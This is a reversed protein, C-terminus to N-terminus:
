NVIKELIEVECNTADLRIKGCIPILIDECDHGFDDCKLIPFKYEQLNNMVIDELKVTETDEHYHGIWLGKIKDFVKHYKLVSLYCDVLELPISTAYAELFLIKDTVEPM